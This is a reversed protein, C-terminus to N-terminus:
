DGRCHRLAYREDEYDDMAQQLVSDQPLARLAATIAKITAEDYHVPPPCRCAAAESQASSCGAVLALLLLAGLRPGAGRNMSGRGRVAGAATARRLALEAFICGFHQRFGIM